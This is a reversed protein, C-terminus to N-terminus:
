LLTSAQMVYITDITRGIIQFLHAIERLKPIDLWKKLNM